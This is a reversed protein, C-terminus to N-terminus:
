KGPDEAAPAREEGYASNAESIIYARIAQTTRRNLVKAFSVM